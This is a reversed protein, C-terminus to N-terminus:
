ELLALSSAEDKSARSGIVTAVNFLSTLPPTNATTAQVMLPQPDSASSATQVASAAALPSGVGLGLNADIAAYDDGTIAFDYNTDGALQAIGPDLGTAGLNADIAGYDDGTVQGDLNTDGFYTYKGVIANAGITNGSGVPWDTAGALSNDFLLLITNGGTAQSTTSIIGTATTDLHDRYGTFVLNQITSFDGNNVVLGNDNLDLMGTGTMSLTQTYLLYTGDPNMVAGGGDSLNLSQLHQTSDFAVIAGSAVSVTLNPHAASADSVFTLTGSTITLTEAGMAGSISYVSGASPDFVDVVVDLTASAASINGSDDEQIATFSHNGFVLDSGPTFTFAGTIDSVVSGILTSYDYINVTVLAKTTGTITPRRDTTLGDGAIGTDSDPTLDLSDPAPLVAEDIFVDAPNSFASPNGAADFAVAWITHQGNSLAPVAASFTGGSVSAWAVPLAQNDVFLAVETGTASTGTFTPTTNVTENDGPTGTDSAPDLGVTPISVCGVSSSASNNTESLESIAGADDVIAYLLHQGASPTWPIQAVASQGIALAPVAGSGILTGGLSPDGDYLNVTTAPSGALGCNAVTIEVTDAVGPALPSQALAMGDASVSLDPLNGASSTDFVSTGTAPTSLSSAMTSSGDNVYALTLNQSQDAGSLGWWAFGATPTLNQADTWDETGSFDRSISYISNQAGLGHWTVDVRSGTVSVVPLGILEQDTLVAESASWIGTSSDRQAMRLSEGGDTVETWFVLATGDPLVALRPSARSTGTTDSVTVPASWVGADLVASLVQADDGTNTTSSLWAVVIKGDPLAALTPRTNATSDDTLLAPASWVTGDFVAYDM